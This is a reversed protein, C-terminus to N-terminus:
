GKVDGAFTWYFDSTFYPLVLNRVKQDLITVKLICTVAVPLNMPLWLWLSLSSTLSDTCWWPVAFTIVVQRGEEDQFTYTSPPESQRNLLIANPPHYTEYNGNIVHFCNSAQWAIWPNDRGEYLALSGRIFASVFSEDIQLEFRIRGKAELLLFSKGRRKM